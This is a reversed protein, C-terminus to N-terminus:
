HDAPDGLSYLGGPDARYLLLRQGALHAPNDPDGPDEPNYRSGPDGLPDLAKPGWPPDRNWQDGLTLPVPPGGPGALHLPPLRVRRVRLGEHDQPDALLAPGGQDEPGVPCVPAM